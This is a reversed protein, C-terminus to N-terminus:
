SPQQKPQLAPDPEPEDSAEEPEAEDRKKNLRWWPTPQKPKAPHAPLASNEGEAVTSKECRCKHEPCHGGNSCKLQCWYSTTDPSVAVCTFADVDPQLPRPVASALLPASALLSILTVSLLRASAAFM